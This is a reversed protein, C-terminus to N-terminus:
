KQDNESKVKALADEYSEEFVLVLAQTRPDAQYYYFKGDHFFAQAIFPLPPRNNFSNWYDIKVGILEVSMKGNLKEYSRSKEFFEQSIPHQQVMKWFHGVLTVMEKRCDEFRTASLGRLWFGWLTPSKNNLEFFLGVNIISMDHSKAYDQALADTAEYIKQQYEPGDYKSNQCSSITLSSIVFFCWSLVRWRRSM